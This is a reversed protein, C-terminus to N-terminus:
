LADNRMRSEDPLTFHFSAGEGPTTHAWIRGGHRRVIRASTSLGIGRGKYESGEHLRVFPQFLKDARSPDFGAGNDRVYYVTEGDILEMGVEIVAAQRKATFKWANSLLNQLVVSVLQEDARAPMSAQIRMEVDREPEDRKFERHIREAIIALDIEQRNMESRKARSFELLSRVLERLEISSQGILGLYRRGEESLGKTDSMEILEVLSNIRRLPAQLDHSVAHAFSDLEENAVRLQEHQNLILEEARKRESIERTVGYFGTVAGVEDFRISYTVEGWGVTGDKYNFQLEVTHDSANEPTLLGHANDSLHRSLLGTVVQLSAPPFLEQPSLRVYEEPLYGTLGQVSSSIYELQLDRNMSWLVDKINEALFRYKEESQRLAAITSIRESVDKMSGIVRFPKGAEDFLYSSEDEVHIYSGDKRRLRYSLTVAGTTRKITDYTAVVHPLDEPHIMAEWGANDVTAFEEPTYGTLKEIAGAWIIKGSALDNDFLVQGTREATIAYRQESAQLTHQIRQLEGIDIDLCFLEPEGSSSRIIAHSSYVPVRSGDKHKLLLEGAPTPIGTDIMRQVDAAVLERMDEPIILDLLNEGIAEEATYGYIQESAKNWFHVSGDARYGQVSIREIDAVLTRFREESEKLAKEAQKAATIDSYVIAVGHGELPIPMASVNIWTIEDPGKVLGMEVNEILRNERLARTSAFEDPPMPTGDIRVIQWDRGDIKRRAQEEPSLGLIMEAVRNGEVISGASDAITMGIPLVDFITRYKIESVRLAAEAELRETVDHALVLRAPRGDFELSHSVIEVDITSGDKLRHKWTGSRQIKEHHSHVHELLASVEEDPRIEKITMALFEERSYGYREIALDNVALFRLSESDYVWMPHPNSNFLLFYQERSRRLEEETRVRETIDRAIAYVRDTQPFSRWEIWRYSGDHSRYRNVFDHVEEGNTLQQVCALTSAHDDPHIFDLYRQGILQERRYGLVKEWQANLRLFRGDYDSISLLDLSHEFYRDLEATLARTEEEARKRDSIDLSTGFYLVSGDDMVMMQASLMAEFTSGDKRRATFEFSGEGKERLTNIIKTPLDPDVCHTEPTTGIVEDADSFGWMRSYARNVYIFRGSEDVIDFGNISNELALSRLRIAQDARRLETVDKMIGFMRTATGAEDPLYVGNEEIDVWTGDKRALRYSCQFEGVTQRAEELLALTRDRDRPHLMATWGDIDVQAFEGPTYGTMQEIAGSWVIRGTLVDYDYFLQGTREATIRFRDKFSLLEEEARKRETIDRAFACLFQTGAFDFFKSHVEVPIARGDKTWHRSEFKHFESINRVSEFVTEWEIEPYAPDIDWIHAALIEERTYGLSRILVENAYFIKGNRDIWLIADAAHDITFQSRQLQQELQMREGIDRVVAIIRPQDGIRAQKLSVETWFTEGTRRKSLWPFVQPGDTVTRHIWELAEKEGFPSSGISLENVSSRLVQERSFGFMECARQNVDVVDGTVPDHLFIADAGANLIERNTRESDRLEGEVRKRETIDRWAVYLITRDGLPVETLTVEVPFVEGDLRRHLWEFRHAGHEHAKRIMERAKTKSDQGDAQTPPSLEEPRSNLIKSRDACRMMELTAPNCDVFTDGDLLLLADISGEFLLRFKQESARLALEAESKAAIEGAVHVLKRISHLLHDYHAFGELKTFYDDAGARLAEVATAENGQGTLFIFPINNGAARVARLLELGNMGPMQFDSLICDFIATSLQELAASGGDVETFELDPALKKLRTRVLLRDDFSDDVHLIRIM